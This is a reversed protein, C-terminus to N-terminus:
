SGTFKPERQERFAAFGERADNTGLLEFISEIQNDHILLSAGIKENM